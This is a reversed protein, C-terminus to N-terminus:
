RGSISTQTEDSWWEIPNDGKIMDEYEREWDLAYPDDKYNHWPGGATWHVHKPNPVPEDYNILLNWDGKIAGIEEDPLWQFQHLWLGPKTNVAKLTLPKCKHCNFMVLSSWNKRGYKTQKQGLFKIDEKPRHDHQKVMVAYNDDRQNWLEAIDAYMLMDCDMWIAWGSYGMLNPVLWRTNSFENSDYEGRPRYYRGSLNKQNIPTIAVPLSSRSLISHSLVHYAVSEVRDYGIFVPIM